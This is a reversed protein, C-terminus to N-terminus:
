EDGESAAGNAVALMREYIETGFARVLADKLAVVLPLGLQEGLARGPTCEDFKEYHLYPGGFNAVRIPFLHCSLPKRFATYGAHWAKEIACTAVGDDYM